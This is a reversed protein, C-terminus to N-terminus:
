KLQGSPGRAIYKGWGPRGRPEGGAAVVEGRVMVLEPWGRVVFDGYPSYDVNMHLGQAVLPREFGPDFVVVDADAGAAIEGKRPHLGFLRAPTTCCRDVWQELSLDGEVVKQYVLSLRTEIGPLGGPIQTFDQWGGGGLGAQRSATDFPCHDTAVVQLHGRKLGEWLEEQHWPDRLPPACIYNAALEPVGEYREASLYLYQPCTEAFFPLGRDRAERVRELAPAGSLHVVYCPAGADAAMRIAREVADAEASPPRSWAHWRPGTHGDALAQSRLRKVAADDECHLCVLSGARGAADLMQAIVEDPVMLREPYTMYLKFSTVGAEAMEAVVDDAPVTLETISMHFGYDVVAKGDAKAHWNALGQSPSEGRYATAFDIVTTTGGCAAAQTGTTFDDSSRTVGVEMDLHTHVDIAGPVVLKGTAEVTEADLPPDIEGVAAITEGAILVDARRAGQPGVVKGGKILTKKSPM